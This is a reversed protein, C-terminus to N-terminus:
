KKTITTELNSDIKLTGETDSTFTITIVSEPNTNDIGIITITNGSRKILESPILNPSGEAYIYINDGDIRIIETEVGDSLKWLWDGNVNYTTEKTIPIHTGDKNFEVETDSKFTLSYKVGDIDFSFTNGNKTIDSAPINQEKIDISGDPNITIKEGGGEYVGAYHSLKKESGSDTPKDGCSIVVLLSISLIITLFKKFNEM